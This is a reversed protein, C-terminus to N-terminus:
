SKAAAFEKVSPCTCILHRDGSVNDIRGVSPWFKFDRLWPAPYAAQERPYYETLRPIIPQHSHCIVPRILSAAEDDTIDMLRM